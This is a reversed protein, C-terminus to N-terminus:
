RCHNLMLIALVCKDSDQVSYSLSVPDSKNYVKAQVFYGLVNGLGSATSVFSGLCWILLTTLKKLSSWNQLFPIRLLSIPYVFVSQQILPSVLPDKADDSPQPILTVGTPTTKAPDETVSDSKENSWTKEASTTLEM